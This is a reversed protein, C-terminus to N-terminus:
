SIGAGVCVSAYQSTCIENATWFGDAVVTSEINAKTVVEPTLLVSPIEATGNNVTKGNTMSVPVTVGFALDYALQAATEAEVSIPDYVTMYQDGRVIRQIAALDAGEGTVPPLPQV